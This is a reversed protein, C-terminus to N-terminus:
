HLRTGENPLTLAHAEARTGADDGRLYRRAFEEILSDVADDSCVLMDELAAICDRRQVMTPMRALKDAGLRLTAAVRSAGISAFAAAARMLSTIPDTRLLAGLSRSEVAAWVECTKYLTRETESLGNRKAIMRDFAM